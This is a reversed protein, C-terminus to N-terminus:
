LRELVVVDQFKGRPGPERWDGPELTRVPALGAQGCWHEFSAADFGIAREPHRPDAAWAAEGYPQLSLRPRGEALAAKAAEDVIFATLFIRGGPKLARGAEKLYAAAVGPEVHTFLSTAVALDISADDVPFRYGAADAGVQGYERNTLDAHVFRIACRGVAVRRAFTLGSRVIDFGTYAGTEDLYACVPFALRGAGCGIDLVHDSPTLGAAGRVQQFLREGAGYFDGGGINHVIRWPRPRPDRLRVPLDKTDSAANWLFNVLPRPAIRHITRKVADIM